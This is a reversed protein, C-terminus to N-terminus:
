CLLRPKWKMALSLLYQAALTLRYGSVAHSSTFGLFLFLAFKRQKEKASFLLIKVLSWLALIIIVYKILLLTRYQCLEVGKSKLETQLLLLM